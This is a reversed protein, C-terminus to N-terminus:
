SAKECAVRIHPFYTISRVANNNSSLENMATCLHDQLADLSPFIRNSFYKERLEDWIHEVPNVEPSYPPQFILRINEPLQLHQSRHWSARDVQMVIFCDTFQKSVHELFITMMETNATPLILSVMEGYKPAVATFAYIAQRVIQQPTCPRMGAPAWCRVPQTIRGFRAEDQVLFIM